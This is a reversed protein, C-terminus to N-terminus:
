SVPNGALDPSIEFTGGSVALYPALTSIVTNNVAVLTPPFSEGNPDSDPGAVCIPPVANPGDCIGDGDTDPNLPDTGTNTADIYNGTDTEVSDALGDADDDDDAVLGPTPQDAANYDSPLDNPLGDGDYDALSQLNFTFTETASGNHTATVTITANAFTGNVTGTIEGTSADITLNGPLNASATWTTTGNNFPPHFGIADIAQNEVVTHANDTDVSFYLQHTTSYNSQNAYVTYTQNNAYVSPTGSIVGNSISMGAPLAPDTEWSVPPPTNLIINTPDLAWLQSGTGDNAQFYLTTGISTFQTNTLSGDTGNRIDQVMLTGAETGDSRWLETGHIGDNARFFHTNGIKLHHNPSSDGSGNNIDKVMVTGSATGDSKWLERGNTGDDASFYLTNGVPALHGPNSGVSGNAIDKVLMTGNTTGDSKWLEHGYTANYSTFYLTNGIVTMQQAGNWAQDLTGNWLDKVLVTGNATGDSKWLEKGHIGDNANFYVANGMAIFDSPMSNPSNSRIDKVQVTGNATGDSKWLEIGDNGVSATGAFYITNGVVTTEGRCVGFGSEQHVLMTGNVTGDSKWLGGNCFYLTDNMVSLGSPGGQYTPNTLRVTGAETGDTKWLSPHSGPSGDEATFFLTNGIVTLQEPDSNATGSNIDKVQVTGNATGDSKWLEYGTYDTSSRNWVGSRYYINDGMSVPPNLSVGGGLTSGVHNAYVMWATGNGNYLTGNGAQSTYNLTIPGMAEGLNLHAGEM